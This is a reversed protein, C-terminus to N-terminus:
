TPMLNMCKQAEHLQEILQPAHNTLGHTWIFMVERFNEKDPFSEAWWGYQGYGTNTQSKCHWMKENVAYISM